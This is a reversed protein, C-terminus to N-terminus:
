APREPEAILREIAARSVVVRTRTAQVCPVGYLAGTEKAMKWATVRHIGLREAAQPITLFPKPNPQM